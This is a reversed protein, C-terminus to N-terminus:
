VERTAPSLATGVRRALVATEYSVLGLDCAAAALVILHARDSASVVLLLGAEMDVVTQHVATAGLCRAAGLTLGALGSGVAALQEARDPPLGDSGALALGDASIALAHSVLPTEQAFRTLLWGLRTATPPATM